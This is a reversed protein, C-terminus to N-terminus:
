RALSSRLSENKMTCTCLAHKAGVTGLDADCELCLHQVLVVIDFIRRNISLPHRPELAHKRGTRELRDRCLRVTWLHDALKWEVHLLDDVFAVSIVLLHVVNSQRWRRKIDSQGTHEEATGRLM